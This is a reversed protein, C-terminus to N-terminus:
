LTAGRWHLKHRLAEFFSSGKLHVMRVSRRNQRLTVVDGEDLETTTQGDASLLSSGSSSCCRVEITATNPVILSRNSLTHPSIPTLQLVKATPHVVAGGAALTYATSGTPTSFILGDCRYRTVPDGDVCVELEIMRSVNARSIVVDNLAVLRIRRGCCGGEASLLSRPEFRYEGKWLHDLARGLGSSPVATLFGLGGINVGLIPTPSGAAERAVGLMTGDGGFVLLLDVAHRLSKLDPYTRVKLRAHQATEELALVTGGRKAIMVAARRVIRAADQKEVNGVLGVRRIQKTRQKM